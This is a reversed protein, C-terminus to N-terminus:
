KDSWPLQTTLRYNLSCRPLKYPFAARKIYYLVAPIQKEDSVRELVEYIDLAQLAPRTSRGFGPEMVSGTGFNVSESASLPRRKVIIGM